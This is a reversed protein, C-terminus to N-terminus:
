SATFWQSAWGMKRKFAPAKWLVKYIAFAIGLFILSFVFIWAGPILQIRLVNPPLRPMQPGLGLSMLLLHRPPYSTGSRLFGFQFSTFCGSRWHPMDNSSVSHCQFWQILMVRVLMTTDIEGPRGGQRKACFRLDGPRRWSRFLYFLVAALALGLFRTVM